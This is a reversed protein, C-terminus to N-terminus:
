ERFELVLSHGQRVRCGRHHEAPTFQLGAVISDVPAPPDTPLTRPTRQISGPEVRGTTDVVLSVRVVRSVGARIPTPPPNLLTVPTEVELHNFVHAASRASDDHVRPPCGPASRAPLEPLVTYPPMPGRERAGGHYMDLYITDERTGGEGDPCRVRYADLIHGDGPARGTSDPRPIVSGRSIVEVATGDACRVRMLFEREGFVGGALVPNAFSGLPAPAVAPGPAPTTDPTTGGPACALVPLAMALGVLPCGPIGSSM